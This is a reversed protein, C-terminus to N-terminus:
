PRHRECQAKISVWQAYLPAVASGIPHQEAFAASAVLPSLGSVMMYLAKM